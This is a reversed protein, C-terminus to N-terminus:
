SHSLEAQCAGTKDVYDKHTVITTLYIFGTPFPKWAALEARKLDTLDTLQNIISDWFTGGAVAQDHKRESHLSSSDTEEVDSSDWRSRGMISLKYM